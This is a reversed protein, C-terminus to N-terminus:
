WNWTYGLSDPKSIGHYTRPGALEYEYQFEKIVNISVNCGINVHGIDIGLSHEWRNGVKAFRFVKSPDDPYKAQYPATEWGFKSIDIINAQCFDLEKPIDRELYGDHIRLVTVSKFQGTSSVMDDIRVTVPALIHICDRRAPVRYGLGFEKSSGAGGGVGLVTLRLYRDKTSHTEQTYFARCGQVKPCHLEAFVVLAREEPSSSLVKFGRLRDRLRRLGGGLLFRMYNSRRLEAFEALLGADLLFPELVRQPILTAMEALNGELNGDLDVSEEISELLSFLGPEFRSESTALPGMQQAGAEELTKPESLQPEPLVPL